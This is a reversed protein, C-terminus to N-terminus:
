RAKQPITGSVQYAQAIFTIPHMVSLPTKLQKAGQEIQLMCGPNGSVVVTAQTASINKM